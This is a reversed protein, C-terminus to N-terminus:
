LLSKSVNHDRKGEKSGLVRGNPDKEAFKVRFSPEVKKNINLNIM